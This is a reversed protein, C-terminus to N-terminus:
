NRLSGRDVGEIANLPALQLHLRVESESMLEDAAIEELSGGRRAASAIRKSTAGRTARAARQPGGRELAVAVNGLGAETTDTLLELAAALHALRDGFRGVSRLANTVRVIVLTQAIIVLALGICVYILM